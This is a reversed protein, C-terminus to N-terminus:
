NIKGMVKLLKKYSEVIVKACNIKWDNAKLFIDEENYIKNMIDDNIIKRKINEMLNELEFNKNSDM